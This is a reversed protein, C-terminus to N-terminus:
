PSDALPRTAGLKMDLCDVLGFAKIREFVLRHRALHLYGEEAQTSANLDGGLVVHANYRRDDFLPTLDSLIRHLTTVSYGSDILGYVSILTLKSGDPLVAQAVAVCGPHTGRLPVDQPSYPSRATALETLASGYSVV